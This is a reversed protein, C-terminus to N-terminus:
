RNIGKLDEWGESMLAKHEQKRVKDVADGLYKAIHFKDFVIKSQADPINGLTAKIYAPWMDMTVSEIGKKQEDTLTDYYSDLSATKREDAVHLVKGGDQDSVVTVYDHTTHFAEAVEKWNLRKAWGALYRAYAETLRRKGVVWPMNEVRIGCRPCDVRRPRYVFFMKCGWTPIFEFRREPLTDYGPRKSGCGSCVPRSNLRPQIEVELTPVSTNKVWSVQGYVFSKFKQVRNLITKIQM